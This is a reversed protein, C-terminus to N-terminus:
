LGWVLDKSLWGKRGSEHEVLLWGDQDRITQFAVGKHAKFIVENDTGPGSRLNVAGANVVVGNMPAVVSKAIWGDRGRFDKVLLFDGNEEQVQLPYYRPLTLKVYSGTLSPSSRLNATNEKVCLTQGFTDAVGLLLLILTAFTVTKKM